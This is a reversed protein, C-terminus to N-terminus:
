WATRTPYRSIFQDPKLIVLGREIAQCVLMRDFPDEHLQPSRHLHM